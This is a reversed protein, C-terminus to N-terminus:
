RQRHHGPIVFSPDERPVRRGLAHEAPRGGLRDPLEQGLHLLVRALPHEAEDLLAEVALGPGIELDHALSLVARRDVDLDRRRPQTVLVAPDGRHHAHDGVDGLALPRLLQEARLLELKALALLEVRDPLERAADGVVEVVQQRRDVALRQERELLKAFVWARRVDLGDDIGGLSGAGEGPLQEGEAPPLYELRTHEVDIRDDLRDHREQSPERAFRDRHPHAEAGVHGRDLGIRGLEVLHEDVEDRVGAIRHRSAARDLDDRADRDGAWGILGRCWGPPVGHERHRVGTDAHVIRHPRPDELREERRLLRALARPEPERGDVPDDRLAASSGM